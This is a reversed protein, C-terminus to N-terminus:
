VHLVRALWSASSAGPFQGDAREGGELIMGRQLDPCGHKRYAHQLLVLVGLPIPDGDPHTTAWIYINHPQSHARRELQAKSVLLPSEPDKDLQMATWNLFTMGPLM